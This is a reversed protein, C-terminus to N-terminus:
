RRNNSDLLKYEYVCTLIIEGKSNALDYYIDGHKEVIKYTRGQYIVLQGIKYM